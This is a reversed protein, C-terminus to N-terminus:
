SINRLSDLATTISELSPRTANGSGYVLEIEDGSLGYVLCALANLESILQERIGSDTAPAALSGWAGWDHESDTALAAAIESIRIHLKNDKEFVPIPLSYLIFFNLNLNVRLHGFWDVIATGLLGLLYAQAVTNSDSFVLFPAKNTLLTNPPTLCAWVKRQNSAHVVDRFAIRPTTIPHPLEELGQLNDQISYPSDKRHRTRERNKSAWGLVREFNANDFEGPEENFLFHGVNLHNFVPTDSMPDQFFKEGKKGDNTAHLDTAPACRFDPRFPELRGDGIGPFAILKSWLRVDQQSSFMPLCAEVDSKQVLRASIATPGPNSLFDDQNFFPGNLEFEGEANSKEGVLTTVRYGPNVGPFVWGGENGFFTVKLKHSSMAKIRWEASGKTAWISLPLVLGVRGAQRKLALNRWGFAKYLDPDGVGMGPYPGNKLVARAVSAAEKRRELEDFLQPKSEGLVELIKGQDDGSLKMFGPVHKAWFKPEEVTLEEWPPNGILVDFGPDNRMFVEPFRLPMHAPNLNQVPLSVISQEAIERFEEPTTAYCEKIAGIKVGLAVDFIYQAEGLAARSQELLAAGHAVESKDAESANAFDIMINTAEHLPKQVLDSLLDGLGLSQMAEEVSVMGTLSNGLVLNHELSSMPLGPVFTHIWIALRSLEVALSNVDLGYVCRRAVQRRLLQAENILMAAELDHGLQERAKEALRELENRVKPVPTVTLFDRMGREIKDVAAVLFHASGMALDAVRFDWFKRAASNEDGADMLRRVEALHEELAPTVSQEILYDVIIKPTYYSGTAKRDGAASHFYPEGKGVLYLNGQVPVFAEDKDIGLNSEALSLSSELLGEYITGFDRVQLSRFDVAGKFGDETDESLLSQLAPGIVSDPLELRELLRGDPSNGDFLSGGYAPVTWQPNGHFIADWVQALDLWITKADKSYQTAEVNLDRRIFSQLSNADYGENRGAPLLGTDEGYAQFLLRFLVRLTLSYAIDLGDSDLAVGLAPLRKAIAVAIGPVVNKYVRDRLRLGLDAAYRGSDSLIQEATGGEALASASFILTLLGGFNEDVLNLDIQFYTESQGRQGVGVGDKGPYLRLTSQRMVILWSARERGAIELGHAVPSIQFKASRQEFHDTEDLLVAIARREGNPLHLSLVNQTGGAVPEVRFGLQEILQRGRTGILKSSSETASQWDPRKPVNNKLHYSAFLFHNTFGVDGSTTFADMFSQALRRAAIGDPESLLAQLQGTARNLPFPGAIQSDQNPGFMWVETGFTAVVMVPMASGTGRDRWALEMSSRTPRTSASLVAVQIEGVASDDRGFFVTDSVFGDPLSAVWSINNAGILGLSM